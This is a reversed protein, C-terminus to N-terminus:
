KKLMDVIVSAKMQLNDMTTINSFLEGMKEKVKEIAKNPRIMVKFEAIKGEANWKIIDVGNILVGDVECTFELMSDTDSHIKRVYKFSNNADAFFMKYANTLYLATLKRGSQPKFVLPSFFTAHKDLLDDIRDINGEDFLNHWLKVNNMYNIPCHSNFIVV